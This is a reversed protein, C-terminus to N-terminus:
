KTANPDIFVRQALEKNLLFLGNPTDQVMKVQRIVSLVNAEEEVQESIFWQLHTHTAHDRLELATDMLNNIRETVKQEHAYADEFAALVSDWTKPPKPIENFEVDAEREHLFNYLKMSHALEEHAQINMWNAFGNLNKTQFYSSISLYLYSSFIEFNVQDNIANALKEDM